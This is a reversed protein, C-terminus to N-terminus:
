FVGETDFKYGVGTVTKIYKKPLKKRTNKVHADIVRDNGFYEENFIKMILQERTFVRNPEKALTQLLLFESLTLHLSQNDYYAEYAEDNIYLGKVESIKTSSGRTRRLITEIRKLLLLPSFPKVVYDDAYLNFAKLQTQEDELATLMITAMQPNTKKIHELVVLGSVKPVMIDLIALDFYNSKLFDLAEEGDKACVVEYNQMKMYETTVESITPEDELFLIKLM